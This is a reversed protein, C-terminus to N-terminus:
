SVIEAVFNIRIQEVTEGKLTLLTNFTLRKGEEALEKPPTFQFTIPLTACAEVSGQHINFILQCTVLLM